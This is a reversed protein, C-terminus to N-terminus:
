VTGTDVNGGSVVAVVQGGRGVRRAAPLALAALSAAGAGEVPTDLSEVGWIMADAIELESVLWVEDMLGSVLGLSYRNGDDLGGSLAGALTPREQVRVPAGALLSRYMAPAHTPSVGILRTTRGAARLASAVGAALGGGSLPILVASADPVQAALEVGVTAHGAIVKLDDFPHVFCLGRQQALTVAQRESADFDENDEHVEAGADRIAWLKVPDADRPVCVVARLGLEFALRAVALGHNGSSATVVGAARERDSLTLMRNAAGRIKFSGTSQLSELKAACRAGSVELARVPTTVTHDRIRQVAAQIESATAAAPVLAPWTWPGLDRVIRRDSVERWCSTTTM